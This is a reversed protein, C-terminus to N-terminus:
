GNTSCSELEKISKIGPYASLILKITWANDANIYFAFPENRSLTKTDIKELTELYQNLSEEKNKFGQYDVIGNKVYKGLLEAYLSNDVKDAAYTYRSGTRSM